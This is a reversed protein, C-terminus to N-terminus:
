AWGATDLAGLRFRKTQPRSVAARAMLEYTQGIRRYQDHKTGAGLGTVLGGSDVVFVAAATRDPLPPGDLGLAPTGKYYQYGHRLVYDHSSHLIHLQECQASAAYLKGPPDLADHELAPALAFVNRVHVGGLALAGLVVLNGLSHACVDVSAATAGLDILIQRMRGALGEATAVAAPFETLVWEGPWIYGVVLDYTAGHVAAYADIGVRAQRYALLTAVTNNNYGHILVLVRRGSAAAQLQAMDVSHSKLKAPEVLHIEDTESLDSSYWFFRRASIFYM